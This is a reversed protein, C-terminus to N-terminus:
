SATSCHQTPNRLTIPLQYRLFSLPHHANQVLSLDRTITNNSVMKTPWLFRLANKDEDNLVIQMFMGDIDASIKLSKERFRLLLSFTNNLLDPGTELCSNLLVSKYTPAANFLRRLKWPKKPTRVPHHPLYWLIEPQPYQFKVPKVYNNELDTTLPKEYLQM